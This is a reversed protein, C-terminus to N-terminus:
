LPTSLSPLPIFLLSFSRRVKGVEEEVMELRIRMTMSEKEAEERSKVLDEVHSLIGELGADSTGKSKMKLIRSIIESPLLDIEDKLKALRKETHQVYLDQSNTFL